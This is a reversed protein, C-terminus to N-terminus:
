ESIWEFGNRFRQHLVLSFDVGVERPSGMLKFYNSILAFKWWGYLWWVGNACAKWCIIWKSHIEGAHFNVRLVDFQHHDNDTLCSLEMGLDVVICCLTCRLVWRGVTPMTKCHTRRNAFCNVIIGFSFRCNARFHEQQITSMRRSPENVNLVVNLMPFDRQSSKCTYSCDCM